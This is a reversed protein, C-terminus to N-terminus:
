IVIKKIAAIITTPKTLKSLKSNFFCLIFLFGSLVFILCRSTYFLLLLLYFFYNGTSSHTWRCRRWSPRRADREGQPASLLSLRRDFLWGVFGFDDYLSSSQDYRGDDDSSDVLNIDFSSFYFLIFEFYKQSFNTVSERVRKRWKRPGKINWNQAPVPFPKHCTPAKLLHCTNNISKSILNQSLCHM